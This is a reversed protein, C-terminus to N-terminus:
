SFRSVAYYPEGTESAHRWITRLVKSLRQGPSLARVVHTGDICVFKLSGKGSLGQIAQDSYGNISIFLGRTDVAKGEIKYMFAGFESGACPEKVWKAEVLHTQGNWLFSGDIQEGVIKFSRRPDLDEIAFWDNCFTELLYGRSQAHENQALNLFRELLM